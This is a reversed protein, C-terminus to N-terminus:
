QEVFLDSAFCGVVGIIGGGWVVICQEIPYNEAAYLYFINNYNGTFLLNETDIVFEMDPYKTKYEEYDEANVWIGILRDTLGVDESELERNITYVRDQYVFRTPYAAGLAPEPREGGGGPEEEEPPVSLVCASFAAFAGTLLVAALFLPLLKKFIKM